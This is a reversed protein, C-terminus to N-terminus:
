ANLDLWERRKQESDLVIWSSGHSKERPCIQKPKHDELWVITAYGQSPQENWYSSGSYLSTRKCLDRVKNIDDYEIQTYDLVTAEIRIFEGLKVYVKDGRSVKDYPAIKKVSCRCLVTLTQLNDFTWEPKQIAIHEM